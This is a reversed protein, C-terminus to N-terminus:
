REFTFSIWLCNGLCLLILPYFARPEHRFIGVHTAVPQQPPLATFGAVSAPCAHTCAAIINKVLELSWDVIKM